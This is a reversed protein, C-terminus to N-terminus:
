WLPVCLVKCLNVFYKEPLETLFLYILRKSLLLHEKQPEKLNKIAKM